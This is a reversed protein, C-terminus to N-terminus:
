INPDLLVKLPVEDTKGGVLLVAKEADKLPFCHSILEELPLRSNRVMKIAPRVSRFDQSYVGILRLENVM